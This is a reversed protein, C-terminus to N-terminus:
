QGPFSRETSVHCGAFNQYQAEKDNSPTSEVRHGELIATEEEHAQRTTWGHDRGEAGVSALADLHHVVAEALAENQGGELDSKNLAQPNSFLVDQVRM